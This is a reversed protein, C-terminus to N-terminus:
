SMLFSFMSLSGYEIGQTLTHVEDGELASGVTFFLPFLHEATPHAWAAHPAEEEYNMLSEVDKKKLKELLWDEFEQARAQGKASKEHWKLDQLNHVAGGSGLLLVGKQRFAGLVKGLKLTMQPRDPYPLSVQVVPVDAKPFLHKLPVWVGHDITPSKEIAANMGASALAGVIEAALAPDGPCDYREMYLKGPFGGFDHFALLQHSSNVSIADDGTALHASVVVVAKPKPLAQGLEHLAAVYLDEEPTSLAIMPTGHSVFLSPFVPQDKGYRSLRSTLDPIAFRRIAM